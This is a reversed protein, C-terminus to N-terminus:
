NLYMATVGDNAQEVDIFFDSDRFYKGNPATFTVTQGSALPVGIAADTVVRQIWVTGVNAVRASKYGCFTISRFQLNGAGLVVPVTTSANTVSTTGITCQGTM